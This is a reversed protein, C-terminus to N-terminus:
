QQDILGSAERRLASLVRSRAVYVSNIPMGLAAAVADARQGDLVQRRFAEWTFPEVRARIQDLLQAMVYRDHELDWERSVASSEDALQDLQDVWATGGEAAPRYNRSRWFERVRYVLITRLWSRFAGTRGSHQFAPLDRSVALLVEQVVDDEDSAQLDFRRVWTRLLPSYIGVLRQWADASAEACIRDILSLSTQTTM